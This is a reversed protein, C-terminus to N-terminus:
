PRAPRRVAIVKVMLAVLVVTIFVQPVWMPWSTQYFAGVLIMGVLVLVWGYKTLM